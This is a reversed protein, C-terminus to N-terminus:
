NIPCLNLLTNLYDCANQCDKKLNFFIGFDGDMLYGNFENILLNKYQDFTLGAMKALTKDDVSPLTFENECFMIYYLSNRKISVQFGM